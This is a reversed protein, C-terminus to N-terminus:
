SRTRWPHARPRPLPGACATLGPAPRHRPAQRLHPRRRDRAAIWMGTWTLGQSVGAVVIGPLVGWYSGDASIGTALLATGAAGGVTGALLSVGGTALM